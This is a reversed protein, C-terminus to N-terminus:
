SEMPIQKMIQIPLKFLQPHKGAIKVGVQRYNRTLNQIFHCLTVQQNLTLEAENLGDIVTLM